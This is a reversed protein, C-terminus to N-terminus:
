PNSLINKKFEKALKRIVKEDLATIVAITKIDLGNLLARKASEIKEEVIGKELGKEMGKEMGESYVKEDIKFYKFGAWLNKEIYTMNFDGKEEQVKKFESFYNSSALELYKKFESPNVKFKDILESLYKPRDNRATLEKLATIEKVLNTEIESIIVIYVPIVSINNIIYLGKRIKEAKFIKILKILKRSSVLTFTTNSINSEPVTFLTGNLYIGLKYLDTNLDFKDNESKFEIINFRKFYKMVELHDIISDKAEIILLDVKKPLDIIEYDTIVKAFPEFYYKMVTKFFEDYGINLKINKNIM